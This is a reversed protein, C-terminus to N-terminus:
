LTNSIVYGLDSAIVREDQYHGAEIIRSKKQGAAAEDGKMVAFNSPYIPNRWQFRLGLTRSQMGTAPGVHALVCNNGWINTMSATLGEAANNKIGRAILLRSVKFVSALQDMSLQPVAVAGKFRDLILPHKQAVVFTDYDMVMTNAMLGTTTRIFAHATDVQSVPDSNPDGWKDSGTLATGSGMNSISTVKDAIRIEQARRLNGVVLRTTNEEIGFPDDANYIDELPIEGALAYNFCHYAESSVDFEVRRAATNRSRKADPSRLFADKTIVAYLDSEKGVPVAPFLDDGVLGDGDEGTAFAEVAIGSLLSDVHLDPGTAGM